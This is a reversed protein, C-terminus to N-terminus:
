VIQKEKIPPLQYREIYSAADRLFEPSDDFRGLAWNCNACLLARVRGTEHDHDVHRSVEDINRKKCLSCKYGQDVLMQQLEAFTIGYKTKLHRDRYYVSGPVGKIPRNRNAKYWARAQERHNRYWLSARNRGTQLRAIVHRQRELEELREWEASRPKAFRKKLMLRSIRKRKQRYGPNKDLWRQRAAQRRDRKEEESLL